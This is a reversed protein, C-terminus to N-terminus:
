YSDEGARNEGAADTALLLLADVGRVGLGQNDRRRYSERVAEGLDYTFKLSDNAIGARILENLGPEFVPPEGGQLIFLHYPM